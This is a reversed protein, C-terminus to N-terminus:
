TGPSTEQGMESAAALQPCGAWAGTRVWEWPGLGVTYRRPSSPPSVPQETGRGLLGSTSRPSLLDLLERPLLSRGAQGARLRPVPGDQGWRRWGLFVWCSSGGARGGAGGTRGGPPWAGQDGTYFRRGLAWVRLSRVPLPSHLYPGRGELSCKLLAGVPKPLQVLPPPARLQTLPGGLSLPFHPGGM